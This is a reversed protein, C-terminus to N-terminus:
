HAAAAMVGILAFWKLAANAGKIPEIEELM